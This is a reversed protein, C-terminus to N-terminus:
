IAKTVIPVHCILDFSYLSLYFLILPVYNCESRVKWLKVYQMKFKNSYLLTPYPKVNSIFAQFLGGWGGRHVLFLSKSFNLLPTNTKFLCFYHLHLTYGLYASLSAEFPSYDNQNGTFAKLNPITSHIGTISHFTVVEM